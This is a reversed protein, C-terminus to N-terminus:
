LITCSYSTAANNSLNNWQSITFNNSMSLNCSACIPRLNSIDFTGNKSKPKDHGVHFKFPTIVNKCWYVYCKANFSSKNYAIWVQERIAKPPKKSGVLPGGMIQQETAMKNSQERIIRQDTVLTKSQGSVCKKTTVINLKRKKVFYAPNCPGESVFTTNTSPTTHKKM